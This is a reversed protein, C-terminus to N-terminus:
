SDLRLGAGKSSSGSQHQFISERRCAKIAKQTDIELQAANSLWKIGKLKLKQSPDTSKKKSVQPTEHIVVGRPKSRILREEQEDSEEDSSEDRISVKKKPRKKKSAATTKKPIVVVKTGQAGKGRGIKPPILGSSIGIFTKYAESNKDRPFLNTNVCSTTYSPKPSGPIPSSRVDKSSQSCTTLRTNFIKGFCLLMILMRRITFVVSFKLEQHDSDTMAQCRGQYADRSLIELPEGHNICTILLCESIHKLLGNYGLDLLFDMLSDNSPPVTFEQNQVRPCINLIKQFLEVNIKCTKNDIDFEYFSSKKVKKITYWFQQMYIVPVDATILFDNYCPTNKIIDSIVQYTEEKQTLTPDM